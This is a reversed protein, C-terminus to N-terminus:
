DSNTDTGVVSSTTIQSSTSGPPSLILTEIDGGQSQSEFFELEDIQDQRVVKEAIKEIKEETQNVMTIQNLLLEGRRAVGAIEVSLLVDELLPTERSLLSEIREKVEDREERTLNFLGRSLPNPGAWYLKSFQSNGEFYDQLHNVAEILTQKDTVYAIDIQGQQAMLEEVTMKNYLTNKQPEGPFAMDNDIGHIHVKEDSTSSVFFNNKHRDPNGALFDLIALKLRKKRYSVGTKKLRVGPQGKVDEMVYADETQDNIKFKVLYTEPILDKMQLVNALNKMAFARRGYDPVTVQSGWWAGRTKNIEPHESGEVKMWGDKQEGERVYTVQVPPNNTTKQVEPATNNTDKREVIAVDTIKPDPLRERIGVGHTFHLREIARGEESLIANRKRGEVHTLGQMDRNRRKEEQEKDFTWRGTRSVRDLIEKTHNSEVGTGARDDREKPALAHRLLLQRQQRSTGGLDREKKGQRAKRGKERQPAPDM